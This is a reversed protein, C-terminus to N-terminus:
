GYHKRERGHHTAQGAKVERIEGGPSLVWQASPHDDSSIVDEQVAEEFWRVLTAIIAVGYVLGGPIWMLVGGLQQDEGRSMGWDERVLRLLGHHDNPNLYHLYLDAPAFALLIGLVSGAIMTAFIYTMVAWPEPTPRRSSPAVVPWWFLTATALFMAHQVMHVRDGELAAGYLPPAHWAWLVGNALLWAILPNGLKGLPGWSMVSRLVSLPTGALLLPPVVVTMLLHQVMHASFLYDHALTDLPSILSLALILLGSVWPIVRWTLPRVWLMYLVVLGVCGVIVEPKLHWASTLISRTTMATVGVVRISRLLGRGM